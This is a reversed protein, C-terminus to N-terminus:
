KGFPKEGRTEQTIPTQSPIKASTAFCVSPLYDPMKKTLVLWFSCARTGTRKPRAVCSACWAGCALPTAPDPECEGSSSRCARKGPPSRAFKRRLRFEPIKRWHMKVFFIGVSFGSIKEPKRRKEGNEESKQFESKLAFLFIGFPM